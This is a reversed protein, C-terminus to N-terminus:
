FHDAMVDQKTEERMAEIIFVCVKNENRIKAYHCSLSYNFRKPQCYFPKETELPDTDVEDALFLPFCVGRGWKGGPM